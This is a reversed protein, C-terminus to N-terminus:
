FPVDDDTIPAHPPPGGASKGPYSVMGPAAKHYKVKSKRKKAAVKPETVFAVELSDVFFEDLGKAKALKPNNAQVVRLGVAYGEWKDPNRDILDALRRSQTTNCPWSHIDPLLDADFDIIYPSGFGQPSDRVQLVVGAVAKKKAEVVDSGKLLRGFDAENVKRAV